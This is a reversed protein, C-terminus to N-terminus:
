RRFPYKGVMLHVFGSGTWIQSPNANMVRIACSWRYKTEVASSGPGVRVTEGAAVDIPNGGVARPTVTFPGTIVLIITTGDLLVQVIFDTGRVGIYATPTVIRFGPKPMKGTIVRLIGEGINAVFAAGSVTTSYVYSDIIVESTAGVRLETGDIFRLHAAASTNRGVGMPESLANSCGLYRPRCRGVLFGFRRM